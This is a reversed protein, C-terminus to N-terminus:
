RTGGRKARLGGRRERHRRERLRDVFSGIALATLLSTIIVGMSVLVYGLIVATGSDISMAARGLELREQDVTLPPQHRASDCNSTGATGM